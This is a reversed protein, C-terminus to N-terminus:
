QLYNIAYNRASSGYNTRFESPGFVAGKIKKYTLIDITGAYISGVMLPTHVSLVIDGYVIIPDEVIPLGVISKNPVARYRRWIPVVFDIYDTKALDWEITSNGYRVDVASSGAIIPRYSILLRGTIRPPKVAWFRFMIEYDGFDYLSLPMYAFHKFGYGGDEQVSYSTIVSNPTDNEDMTVNELFLWTDLMDEVDMFGGTLPVPPGIAGDNTLTGEVTQPAPDQPAGSTM